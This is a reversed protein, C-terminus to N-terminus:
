CFFFISLNVVVYVNNWIDRIANFTNKTVKTHYSTVSLNGRKAIQMTENSQTFVKQTKVNVLVNTSFEVPYINIKM